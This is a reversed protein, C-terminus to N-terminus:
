SRSRISASRASWIFRRKSSTTKFSRASSFNRHTRHIGLISHVGQIRSRAARTLQTVVMDPGFMDEQREQRNRATLGTPPQLRQSKSDRIEGLRHLRHDCATALPHHLAPLKRQRRAGLLDQLNGFHLGSLTLGHPRRVQHQRHEALALIGRRLQQEVRPERDLLKQRSARHRGRRLIRGAFLRRVFAFAALPARSGTTGIALLLLRRRDIRESAIKGVKRTLALQIGHDPALLFQTADNLDQRAARLVIRDQNTLGADALRCDHLPERLRNM